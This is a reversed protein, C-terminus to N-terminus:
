GGQREPEYASRPLFLEKVSPRMLVIITFVGLVTGIPMWICLVCATVFSFTYGSRRSLNRASFFTAAALSWALLIFVSAFAIFFYGIIEPPPDNPKTNGPGPDFEGTVIFIGIALHIFPICGMLGLLGAAIYHFIVLLKLHERDASTEDSAM